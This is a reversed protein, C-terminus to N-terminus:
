KEVVDVLLTDEGVLKFVCKDGLKLGKEKIFDKWGWLYGKERSVRFKATWSKRDSDKLTIVRSSLLNCDNCFEKSLMMQAHMLTCPTITKEIEPFKILNSYNVRENITLNFDNTTTVIENQGEIQVEILTSDDINQLVVKQAEMLPEKVITRMDTNEEQSETSPGESCQKKEIQVLFTSKSVLKFICKDGLKLDKDTQFDKWGKGLCGKGQYPMYSVAWTKNESDTLIMDRSSSLNNQKVFERSLITFNYKLNYPLIIKEIQPIQNSDDANKVTENEQIENEHLEFSSLKSDPASTGINAEERVVIPTGMYPLIIMEIESFRNSGDGNQVTEDKLTLSCNSDPCSTGVNEEARVLISPGETSPEKDTRNLIRDNANTDSIEVIEQQISPKEFIIPSNSTDSSMETIEEKPIKIPISPGAENSKNRNESTRREQSYVVNVLLTNEDLARFVCRDGKKLKNDKMFTKWGKRLCGEKYEKYYFRVPWSKGESNRLFIKHDRILGNSLCFRRPLIMYRSNYGRINKEIKAFKVLNSNDRLSEREEAELEMVHVLFTNQKVLQFVCKQGLKLKSDKAFDTWGKGLFGNDIKPYFWIPWSRGETNFVFIFRASVLGHRECFKKPVTIGKKGLNYARVIKEFKPFESSNPSTNLIEEGLFREREVQSREENLQKERRVTDKRQLKERKKSTELKRRKNPSDLLNRTADENSPGARDLDEFIPRKRSEREREYEKLCMSNDFVKVNFVMNGIYQFLVFYGTRLDHAKSFEPWGSDFYLDDDSQLINVHWFKGCPSYFTARKHYHPEAQLHKSIKSPIRLKVVPNPILVRLFQLKKIHSHSANKSQAM